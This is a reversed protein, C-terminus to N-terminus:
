LFNKLEQTMATTVLIARLSPSTVVIAAPLSLFKPPGGGLGWGSRQPQCLGPEYRTEEGTFGTSLFEATTATHNKLTFVRSRVGKGWLAMIGSLGHPAEAGTKNKSRVPAPSSRHRM